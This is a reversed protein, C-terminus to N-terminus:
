LVDKFLEKNENIFDVYKKKLPMGAQLLLKIEIETALKEEIVKEVRHKEEVPTIAADKTTWGKRMRRYFTTRSVGNEVAKDAWEKLTNAETTLARELTFDRDKDRLRNYFTGFDVVAIDKYKEYTAKYDIKM